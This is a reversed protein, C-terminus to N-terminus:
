NFKFSSIMQRTEAQLQPEASWQIVYETGKHFISLFGHKRVRPHGAIEHRADFEAIVVNEEGAIPTTTDVEVESVRGPIPRVFDEVSSARVELLCWEPRDLVGASVNFTAAHSFHSVAIRGGTRSFTASLPQKVWGPQIDFSFGFLPDHFSIPLESVERRQRILDLLISVSKAASVEEPYKSYANRALNLHGSARVMDGMDFYVKGLCAHIRAADFDEPSNSLSLAKNYAEIAEQMERRNHCSVGQNILADIETDEVDVPARLFSRVMASSVIGIALSGLLSWRARADSALWQGFKGSTPPWSGYMWRFAIWATVFFVITGLFGQMPIVISAAKRNLEPM